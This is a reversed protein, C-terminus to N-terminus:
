DLADYSLAKKKIQAFDRDFIRMWDNWENLIFAVIGGIPKIPGNSCSEYNPFGGRLIVM